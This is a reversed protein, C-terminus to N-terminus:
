MIFFIKGYAVFSPKQPCKTVDIRKTHTDLIIYTLLDISSDINSLFYRQPPYDGGM